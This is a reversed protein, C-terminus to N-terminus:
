FPRYNHHVDVTYPSKFKRIDFNDCTPDILSVLARPNAILMSAHVNYPGSHMTYAVLPRTDPSTRALLDAMVEVAQSQRANFWMFNRSFPFAYDVQKLLHFTYGLIIGDESLRKVRAFASPATIGVSKGLDEYTCMSDKRLMKLITIDKDDLEVVPPRKDGEIALDDIGVTDVTDIHISSIDDSFEDSLEDAYIKPDERTRPKVVLPFEEDAFRYLTTAWPKTKIKDFLKHATKVSPTALHIFYPLYGLRDAAVCASARMFGADHLHKFYARVNDATTGMEKAVYAPTIDKWVRRKKRLENVFMASERTLRKLEM